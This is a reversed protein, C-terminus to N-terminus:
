NENKRGGQIIIKADKGNNTFRGLGQGLTQLYSKNKQRVSYIDSYKGYSKLALDSFEENTGM